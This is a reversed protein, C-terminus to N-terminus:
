FNKTNGEQLLAQLKMLDFYFLSPNQSLLNKAIAPEMIKSFKMFIQKLPFLKFIKYTKYFKTNGAYGEKILKYYNKVGALTKDIFVQNTDLNIHRVPNDIHLVKIGKQLLINAFKTDEHGYTKISEDLPSGLYIDKEIFINKLTINRYPNATRDSAQKAERVKGYKWRLVNNKSPTFDYVSGGIIIASQDASEIYKKLFDNKIIAINCDLMILHSYDAERALKNRIASRGINESLETYIIKNDSILERNNKKIDPSSGDDYCRIEFPLNLKTAQELLEHM